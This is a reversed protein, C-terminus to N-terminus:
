IHSAPRRMRFSEVISILINVAGIGSLAGRFYPSMWVDHLAPSASAFWNIEWSDLWPLAILMLGLEFCFAIFLVAALKHFWRLRAPVELPM